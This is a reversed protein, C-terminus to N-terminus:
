RTKLAKLIAPYDYNEALQALAAQLTPDYVAVQEIIQEIRESELSTVATELARRLDDPLVLLMDATLAVPELAALPANAYVYEVGLHRALCDYIENGRYPKRVFDDMGAALIENRQEEFASATVAVIKVTDGGPLDRIIRAAELGDMVPMQKDMWIFHPHWSEFLAVAEKGNGAVQVQFGVLQMLNALLLRNELQDEVVLIRYDTQGPVIGLVERAEAHHLPHIDAEEAGKLPLDIRFLAGEGPVSELSIRGNMLQVFQRTISLGLGTGKNDALQGIQVFPEFIRQQDAPAIGQGSDEVEILLHSITNNRTSLRITVGGQQTFKLANGVLNILVQRLRAQDGIIYRPFTSSQDIVLQLNKEAARVQM